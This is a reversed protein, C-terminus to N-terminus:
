RVDLTFSGKHVPPLKKNRPILKEKFSAIRQLHGYKKAKMMTSLLDNNTGMNFSTSLTSTSQAHQLKALGIMSTKKKESHTHQGRKLKKVKPLKIQTRSHENKKMKHRHKRDRDRERHHHMRHHNHNTSHKQKQQQKQQQYKEYKNARFSRKRRRVEDKNRHKSHKSKRYKSHSKISPAKTTGEIKFSHKESNGMSNAISNAKSAAKSNSAKLSKPHHLKTNDDRDHHSQVPIPLASSSLTAKLKKASPLPGIGIVKGNISGTKKELEYLRDFYRHKLSQYGTIRRKPDYILLQTILSIAERDAHPILPAIGAGKM